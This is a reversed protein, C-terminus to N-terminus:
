NKPYGSVASAFPQRKGSADIGALRGNVPRGDILVSLTDGMVRIVLGSVAGAPTCVLPAPFAPVGSSGRPACLIVHPRLVRSM